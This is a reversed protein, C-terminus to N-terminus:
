RRPQPFSKRGRMQSQQAAQLQKKPIQEPWFSYWSQGFSKGWKFKKVRDNAIAQKLEKLAGNGDLVKLGDSVTSMAKDRKGAELLAYAYLGWMTADKRGYRAAKEMHEVALDKHNSRLELAALMGLAQWNRNWTKQLLPRAAKYNRSFYEIAGLQANIQQDILFQWRALSRAAELRRRAPEVSGGQLDEGADKMIAELKRGIRRALLFYVLPFVLMAPVFGYTWSGAVTGLGFAIAGAIFALLLNIM